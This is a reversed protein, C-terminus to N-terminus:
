RQLVEIGLLLDSRKPCEMPEDETDSGDDISNDDHTEDVELLKVLIETDITLMQEVSVDGDKNILM